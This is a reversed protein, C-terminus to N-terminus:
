VKITNSREKNEAKYIFILNHYFHIEIIMQDFYNSKSKRGPIEEYNLGDVLSKFFGMITKQSNLNEFQGGYESWYSTQTDEVVYVGGIKLKPFLQVFSNIVHENIHSGDDIIIDIEGIRNVIHSMAKEDSQDAQFTIIRKENFKTKDFLDVGYIRGRPFFYKWMKLSAGGLHSNDDGGIGIELLKIKKLQFKKFHKQYHQTYFHSGFKDSKYISALRDLNNFSCYSALNFLVKNNIIVPKIFHYIRNKIHKIM